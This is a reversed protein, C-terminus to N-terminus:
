RAEEPEDAISNGDDNAGAIHQPLASLPARAGGEDQAERGEEEVAELPVGEMPSGTGVDAVCAPSHYEM